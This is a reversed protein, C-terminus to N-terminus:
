SFSSRVQHTKQASPSEELAPPRELLAGQGNVFLTRVIAILTLKTRRQQEMHDRGRHQDEQSREQRQAEKELERARGGHESSVRARQEDLVQEQQRSGSLTRASRMRRAGQAYCTQALTVYIATICEM